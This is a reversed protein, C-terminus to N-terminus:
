ENNKNEGPVIAGLKVLAKYILYVFLYISTISIMRMYSKHLILTIDTVMFATPILTILVFVFSIFLIKLFVHEESLMHTIWLLIGCMVAIAMIISIMYNTVGVTVSGSDGSSINFQYTGVDSYTFNFVCFYTTGYDSLNMTILHNGTVNYIDVTYDRCENPYDWTTSVYCPVEDPEIVDQCEKLGYSLPLVLVM